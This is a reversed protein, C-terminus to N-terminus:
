IQGQKTAVCKLVLVTSFRIIPFDTNSSCLQDHIVDLQYGTLASGVVFAQLIYQLM